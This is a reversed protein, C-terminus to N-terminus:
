KSEPVCVCDAAAHSLLGGGCQICVHAGLSFATSHTHIYPREFHVAKASFYLNRLQHEVRQVFIMEFTAALGALETLLACHFTTFFKCIQVNAIIKHCNRVWIASATCFIATDACMSGIQLWQLHTFTFFCSKEELKKQQWVVHKHSHQSHVM